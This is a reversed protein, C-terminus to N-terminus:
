NAEPYDGSTFTSTGAQFIFVILAIIFLMAIAIAVFMSARFINDKMKSFFLSQKKRAERVFNSTAM